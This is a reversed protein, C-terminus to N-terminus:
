PKPSKARVIVVFIMVFCIFLIPKDGFKAYFTPDGGRAQITVDLFGPQIEPLTAIVQGQYDIAGTVGTNTARVMPRAFEKACMRSINLHQPLASSNGFWALNSLNVLVTPNHDHKWWQAIENPFLDEYCLTPALSQEDLDFPFQNHRGREQDAMPIGLRDVLWRFGFPVFEGFPVLHRKFYFTEEGKEDVMIASNYFRRDQSELFGGYILPNKSEENVWYFIRKLDETIRNISFPFITEPLVIIQGPQLGPANMAQVYRRFSEQTGMPSFKEGQEIGGQVLRFSVKGADVGFSALSALLGGVVILGGLLLSTLQEKKQKKWTALALWAVLSALEASLWEIGLSGIFPAYEFLFDDVHAYSGSGWGFGTLVWSRLWCALTWVSPILLTFILTNSVTRIRLFSIIWGALAYFLALVSGLAVVGIVALPVPINGYQHLSIYLWCLATSLWSLGFIFSLFASQKLSRVQYLFFFLVALSLIQVVGAAPAISLGHAVGSFFVLISITFLFNM